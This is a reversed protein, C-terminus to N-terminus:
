STPILLSKGKRLRVLAVQLRCPLKGPDRSRHFHSDQMLRARRGPGTDSAVPREVFGGFAWARVLSPKFVAQLQSRSRMADVLGHYSVIRYSSPSAEFKGERMLVAVINVGHAEGHNAECGNRKGSRASFVARCPWEPVACCWEPPTGSEKKSERVGIQEYLSREAPRRYRDADDM